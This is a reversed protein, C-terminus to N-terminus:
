ISGNDNELMEEESNAADDSEEGQQMLLAEGGFFDRWLAVALGHTLAAAWVSGGSILYSLTAGGLVITASVLFRWDTFVKRGRPWCTYGAVPHLSVHAMLVIASRRLLQASFANSALSPHPAILIGRWLVEEVLSPFLFAAMPKLSWHLRSPRNWPPDFDSIPDVFGSIKCFIGAAATTGIAIAGVKIYDGFTPPFTTLSLLARQQAAAFWSLAM